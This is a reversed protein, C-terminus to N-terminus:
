KQEDDKKGDGDKPPVMPPESPAQPNLLGVNAKLGVGAILGAILFHLPPFVIALALAVGAFVLRVTREQKGIFGATKLLFGSIHEPFCLGGIAGLAILWISLSDWFLMNCIASVLFVASLLISMKHTKGFQEIEQMTFGEKMARLEQKSKM